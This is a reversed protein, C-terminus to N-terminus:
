PPFEHKIDGLSAISIVEGSSYGM